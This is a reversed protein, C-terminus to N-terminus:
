FGATKVWHKNNTVPNYDLGAVEGAGAAGAYLVWSQESQDIVFQIRTGVSLTDTPVTELANATGTLADIETDYIAGKITIPQSADYEGTFAELLIDRRLLVQETGAAPTGLITLPVVISTDDDGFLAAIGATRLDLTGSKTAIVLLAAGNVAIGAIASLAKTGKYAILYTDDTERTVTVNGAGITAMAELITQILAPDDDYGILGSEVSASTYTWSGGWRNTPLTVRVKHNHTADGQTVVAVAASPAPSDTDLTAVVETGIMARVAWTAIDQPTFVRADYPATIRKLLGIFLPHTDAQQFAPFTAPRDDYLSRAAFKESPEVLLLM